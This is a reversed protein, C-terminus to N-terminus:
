YILGLALREGDLLHLVRTRDVLQPDVLGTDQVLLERVVFPFGPSLISPLPLCDLSIHVPELLFFSLHPQLPCIAVLHIIHLYCCRKSKWKM